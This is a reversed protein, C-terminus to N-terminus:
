WRLGYVFYLNKSIKEYFGPLTGNLFISGSCVTPIKQSIATVAGDQLEKIKPQHYLSYLKFIMNEILREHQIQYCICISFLSM